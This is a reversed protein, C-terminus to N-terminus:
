KRKSEKTNRQKHQCGRGASCNAGLVFCADLRSGAQRLGAARLIVDLQRAQLRM